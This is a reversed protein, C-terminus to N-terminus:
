HLEPITRLRGPAGMDVGTRRREHAFWYRVIMTVADVEPDPEAAQGSTHM